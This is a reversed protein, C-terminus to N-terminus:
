RGSFFVLNQSPGTPIANRNRSETHGDFFAINCLGGHDFGMTSATQLHHAGGIADATMVCQAPYKLVPIFLPGFYNSPDHHAYQTNTSYTGYFQTANVANTHTYNLKQIYYNVMTMNEPCQCIADTQINNNISRGASRLYGSTILERDYRYLPAGGSVLKLPPFFGNYDNIYNMLAVALQKQNGVCKIRRAALQAKTLAPLLMSALVAIIAIVVLLEILTFARSSRRAM